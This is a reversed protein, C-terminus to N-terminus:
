ALLKTASEAAARYPALPVPIDGSYGLDGQAKELKKTVKGVLKAIWRDNAVADVAARKMTDKVTSNLAKAIGKFGHADEFVSPDRELEMVKTAKVLAAVFDLLEQDFCAPLRAHASLKVNCEDKKTQELEYEAQLTKPRGDADDVDQQREREDQKTPIPPLLHEHHPLLFSPIAVRIDAGGLRLVQKLDIQQALTRYAMVDDFRLSALIDFNTFYPVQALCSINGLQLAFNADSLWSSIRQSLHKIASDGHGYSNFVHEDLMYQIWKGSGAATISNITIPHLYSVPNLLLRLLM